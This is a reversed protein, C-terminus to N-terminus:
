EITCGAPPESYPHHAPRDAPPDKKYFVGRNENQRMSHEVVMLAVETMNRAEVAARDVADPQWAADIRRAVGELIIKASMLGDTTRTIGAFRTMTHRVTEAADRFTEVHQPRAMRQGDTFASVELEGTGISDRADLAAARAFVLAELLSNSALRNAGHLGTHACEGAAYLGPIHTRGQIDTDIGGCVYHAAPHVPILRHTFDIGEEDLMAAITPFSSRFSGSDLHRIDLFVESSDALALEREIARSVVDRPALDKMPHHNSMFAEGAANRLRAGAGRVAESILFSQGGTRRFVTPHFQIFEMGSVCAGARHAMAIADGTAMAPNTTFRYLSGLGGGALLVARGVFANVVSTQLNLVRVGVCRKQSENGDHEVMLDLALHQDFVIISSCAAVRHLLTRMIERGTTDKHHAVRRRSHGGELGLDLAGNTGRDFQAGLEVLEQLREPGEGIVHEVVSERCVGDGARLTDEIHAEISDGTTDLVAAIGGQAYQTNCDRVEAKSLVAIRANPDLEATKLAYTLGAIGSGVVVHDFLLM